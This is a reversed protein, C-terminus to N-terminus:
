LFILSISNQLNDTGSSALDELIARVQQNNSLHMAAINLGTTPARQKSYVDLRSIINKLLLDERGENLKQLM